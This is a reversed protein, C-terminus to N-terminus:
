SSCSLAEEVKAVYQGWSQNQLSLLREKEEERHNLLHHLIEKVTDEQAEKVYLYPLGIAELMLLRTDTGVGLAPIGLSALAIVSHLRNGIGVRAQAIVSFYEQPNKPFVRPISPDLSFALSYEKESHCLFVVPHTKRVQELIKLLTERWSQPDIRQGWDYHGGKEMYNVVLTEGQRPPSFFRGTLFAPCPLLPCSYGLQSFLTQALRDRVTTVQCYGLIKRLFRTDRSDKIQQPQSEWPYCSGAGLNLVKKGKQRIRGIIHEWLPTAWESRSCGPWAVPTGCQVVFDCNEFLHSGFPHLIRSAVNYLRKKGRPLAQLWLGIRRLPHGQPYVTFPYHKNVLVYEIDGGPFVAEIVRCIGERIFDDGLNTNITTILGVRQKM